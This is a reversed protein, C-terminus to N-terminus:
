VEVLIIQFGGAVGVGNQSTDAAIKIDTGAPIGSLPIKFDRDVYGSGSAGITFWEAIQFVGGPLRFLAQVNCFADKKKAIAAFGSTIYGVKGFPVTYCAILTRNGGIPLQFFVNATTVNQRGTLTGDNVGGSGGTLVIARDLRLYQNVSNVPTTGNLEIIEEQEVLNADLGILQLTRAGTGLLTDNANSSFVEVTEAVTANFGTYTGGGNWLDEFGSAIDIDPNRGFKHIASVGPILGRQVNLGFNGVPNNDIIDPFVNNSM